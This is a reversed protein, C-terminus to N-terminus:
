GGVLELYSRRRRPPLSLIERESWGYARALADVERLVRKARVSLEAWLFQEVDLLASWAEGCAPCELALVAEAHPAVEGMAESLAAMEGDSLSLSSVAEGDRRAELVCRSALVMRGEEVSGCEAVAALDRSDPLRFRLFLGGASVEWPGEGPPADFLGLDAAGFAMELREGCSPCLTFALLRPGVLRARLALLRRDREAVSITALSARPVEPWAAQLLTLARDLPHQDRGREWVELVEEASLM